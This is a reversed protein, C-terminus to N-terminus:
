FVDGYFNRFECEECRGRVATAAPLIGDRIMARIEALRQLTQEKLRKTLAVAVVQQVPALYIFGTEVQKHFSEEVLL